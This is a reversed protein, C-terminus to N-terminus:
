AAIKRHIAGEYAAPPRDIGGLSWPNCRLVRWVAFATGMLAGRAAIASEAYHSCSPYFRCHGGFVGALAVRYLQIAVLLASRVPWGAARVLRRVFRLASIVVLPPATGDRTPGDSM